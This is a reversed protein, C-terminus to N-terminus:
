RPQRLKMAILCACLLLTVGNALIIAVDGLLLGYLLWLAIGSTFIALWAGSLHRAQRHRWTKLVQPLFALTTLGGALLGLLAENTMALRRTRVPRGTQRAPM